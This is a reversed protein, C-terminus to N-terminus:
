IYTAYNQYGMAKIIGQAMGQLNDGLTMTIIVPITSSVMEALIDDETFLYALQVRLIYM